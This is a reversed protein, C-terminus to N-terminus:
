SAVQADTAAGPKCRVCTVTTSSPWSAPYAARHPRRGRLHDARAPGQHLGPERRPSMSGTRSTMASSRSGPAHPMGSFASRRPTKYRDVRLVLQLRHRRGDNAAIAGARRTRALVLGAGPTGGPLPHQPYPMAPVASSYMTATNVSFSCRRRVRFASRRGTFSATPSVDGYVVILKGKM